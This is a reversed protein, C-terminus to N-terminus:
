QLLINVKLSTRFAQGIAPELDIAVSAVLATGLDLYSFFLLGLMLALGPHFPTFPM